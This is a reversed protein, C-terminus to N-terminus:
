NIDWTNDLIRIYVIQYLRKRGEVKGLIYKLNGQMWIKYEYEIEVGRKREIKFIIFTKLIPLPFSSHLPNFM